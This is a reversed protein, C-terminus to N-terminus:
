IEVKSHKIEEKITTNMIIIAMHEVILILRKRIQHTM